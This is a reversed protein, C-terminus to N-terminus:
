RTRVVRWFYAPFDQMGYLTVVEEIPAASAGSPLIIDPTFDTFPGAITPAGQVRYTAGPVARWNLEFVGEGQKRVGLRFPTPPVAIPAAVIPTNPETEYAWGVICGGPWFNVERRFDFHIYGYHKNTGILFEVALVAEKDATDGGVAIPFGPGPSSWVLVVSRHDGYPESEDDSNPDGWHWIYHNTNLTSVLNSGIVTGLPLAGVSGYVNTTWPYFHRQIIIRTPYNFLAGIWGPGYGLRFDVQADSNFDIAVMNFPADSELELDAAAIFKPPDLQSIQVAANASSPLCLLVALAVTSRFTM